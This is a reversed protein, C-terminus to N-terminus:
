ARVYNRFLNQRSRHFAYLNVKYYEGRSFGAPFSIKDRSQSVIDWGEKWIDISIKSMDPDKFADQMSLGLIAPICNNANVFIKLYKMGELDESIITPFAKDLVRSIEILEKGPKENFMKGLIWSGEFNHVVKGPELYTSGFMVISSIIRQKPVYKAVINDAQIGNQTTLNTSNKIFSINDNCAADLDQTKVALVVLDPQTELKDYANLKIDFDGRVGSIHLGQQKIAKISDAHGILCVDEGQLKLYGAVVSGIAGAGIVAIKM